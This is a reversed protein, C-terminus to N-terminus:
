AAAEVYRDIMSKKIFQTEEAADFIDTGRHAGHDL